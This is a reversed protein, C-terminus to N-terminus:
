AIEEDQFVLVLQYNSNNCAKKTMKPLVHPDYILVDLPRFGFNECLVEFDVLDLDGIADEWVKKLCIKLTERDIKKLDIEVIIEDFIEYSDEIQYMFSKFQQYNVKRTPSFYNVINNKVRSKIKELILINDASLDFFYRKNIQSITIDVGIKYLDDATLGFNLFGGTRQFLNICENKLYCDYIWSDQNKLHNLLEDIQMSKIKSIQFDNVIKAYDKTLYPSLIKRSM